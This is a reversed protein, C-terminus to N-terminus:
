IKAGQKNLKKRPLKDIRLWRIGNSRYLGKRKKLQWFKKQRDVRIIQDKRKAPDPLHDYFDVCGIIDNEYHNQWNKPKETLIKFSKYNGALLVKDEIERLNDSSFLFITRKKNWVPKPDIGTVLFFFDKFAKDDKKSWLYHRLHQKM